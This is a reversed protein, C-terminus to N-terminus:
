MNKVHFSVEMVGYQVIFFRKSFFDIFTIHCVVEMMIMLKKAKVAKSSWSLLRIEIPSPSFFVHHLYFGSITLSVCVHIHAHLRTCICVCEGVWVHVGLGFYARICMCM